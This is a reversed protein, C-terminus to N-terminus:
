KVHFCFNREFIKYTAIGPFAKKIRVQRLGKFSVKKVIKITKEPPLTLKLDGNM